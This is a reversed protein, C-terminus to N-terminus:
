TRTATSGGTRSRSSSRWRSAPATTPSGSALYEAGDVPRSRSSTRSSSWSTARRRAGRRRGRARPRRGRPAARRAPRAHAADLRARRRRDRGRRPRARAGRDPRRDARRRRAPRAAPRRPRRGHRGGPAPGARGAPGSAISVRTPATGGSVRTGDPLDDRAPQRRPPRPAARGLRRARLHAPPGPRAGRTDPSPGMGRGEDSIVVELTEARPRVVVDIAGEGEEYAHRVVNTCAETVALRVDEVVGDPMASRTASASSCGGCWPSTRRIRPSPSASTRHRVRSRGRLPHALATGLARDRHGPDTVWGGRHAHTPFNDGAMHQMQQVWATRSLLAAPGDRCGAHQCVMARAACRRTLRGPAPRHGPRAAAPEPQGRLESRSCVWAFGAQLFDNGASAALVTTLTRGAPPAHLRLAVIGLASWAGM